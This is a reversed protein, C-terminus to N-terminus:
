RVGSFLAPLSVTSTVALAESQHHDKRDCDPFVVKTPTQWIETVLLLMQMENGSARGERAAYPYENWSWSHTDENTEWGRSDQAFPCCVFTGSTTYSRDDKMVGPLLHPHQPVLNLFECASSINVLALCTRILRDAVQKWLSNWWSTLETDQWLEVQMGQDKQSFCYCLTEFPLKELQPPWQTSVTVSSYQWPSFHYIGTGRGEWDGVLYSENLLGTIPFFFHILINVLNCYFVNFDMWSFIDLIVTELHTQLLLFVLLQYMPEEHLRAMCHM